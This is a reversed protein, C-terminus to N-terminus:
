YINRPASTYLTLQETKESEKHVGHVTARWIGRDMSNELCSYQPPQCKQSCIYALVYILVQISVPLVQVHLPKKPPHPPTAGDAYRLYSTNRRAIKIGAQSEDLKANQM